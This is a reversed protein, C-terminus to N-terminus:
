FMYWEEANEQQLISGDTSESAAAPEPVAAPPMDEEADEAADKKLHGCDAWHEIDEELAEERAAEQDLSALIDPHETGLAARKDPPLRALLSSLLVQSAEWRGQVHTTAFTYMEMFRRQLGRRREAGPYRAAFVSGLKTSHWRALDSTLKTKSFVRFAIDADLLDDPRFSLADLRDVDTVEGAEEAAAAAPSENAIVVVDEALLEPEDIVIVDEAPPEIVVSAPSAAGAGDEASFQSWSQGDWAAAAAAAANAPLAAEASAPLAVACASRPSAAADSAAPSAVAFAPPAAAPSPEVQPAPSTWSAPLAGSGRIPAFGGPTRRAAQLMESWWGVDPLAQACGIVFLHTRARTLSVCVREPTAFGARPGCFSLIVVENEQGQRRLRPTDAVAPPASLTLSLAVFHSAQFSDVTSVTVPTPVGLRAKIAEVQKHYFSLVTVREAAVGHSLLLRVIAAATAAEQPHLDRGAADAAHPPPVDVFALHPLRPLLPPRQGEACGDLLRGGYFARNPVRSLAPHMRYQTDLLGPALGADALRTFLPRGISRRAAEGGLILPPLQAADGVLLCRAAGFALLPLLAAPETLQSAEDIFVYAFQQGALAACSVSAITVGVVRCAAARRAREAARGSELEALDAAIAARSAGDAAEALMKRLEKVGEAKGREHPPSFPLVRPHMRPKSGCRAFDSFGGDLLACLLRDVSANTLGALLVREPSGRRALAAALLRVATALTATKGCGFPGQVLMAPPQAAPAEAWRLVAQVCRAQSENLREAEMLSVTAIDLPPPPQPPPPAPSMLARLLAPLGAAGALGALARLQDLESAANFARLCYVAAARQGSLAPPRPGLLGVALSGSPDVGHWLAHALLTFGAGPRAGAPAALAPWSSVVWLDGRAQEKAQALGGLRFSPEAAAAPAGEDGDQARRRGGGEGRAQQEALSARAAYPLRSRALAAAVEAQGAAGGVAAYFPAATERALRLALEEALAGLLAAAYAAPSAFRDPVVAARPPPCAAAERSPFSLRIGSPHLSSGLLSPAPAARAPAPRSAAAPPAARPAADEEEDSDLTALLAKDSLLKLPLAAAAAAPAAPATPAAGGLPPKAPLPGSDAAPGLRAYKAAPGPLALPEADEPEPEEDHEVVGPAYAAVTREQFRPQAPPPPPPPPPRKVTAPPKFPQNLTAANAPLFAKPAVAPRSYGSPPAATMDVPADVIVHV